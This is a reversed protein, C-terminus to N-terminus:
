VIEVSKELLRRYVIAGAIYLALSAIIGPLAVGLAEGIGYNYLVIRRVGELCWYLPLAKPIDQAWEPLIFAPIIIGGLFMLPFAISNVLMNVAEPSRALPAIVLGLGLSGLLGVAFLGSMALADRWEILSYDAGALRGVVVIATASILLAVMSTVTDAAFITYGRMPSSLLLKLTGDRKREVIIGAGTYLGSFLIQVGIMGIVYFTRVGGKTALIEPSVPVGEVSIPELLIEARADGAIRAAIGRSAEGIVSEIISAIYDGSQPNSYYLLLVRGQSGQTINESFGEGIFVAASLSGNAIAKRLEELGLDSLQLKLAGTSNLAQIIVSSFPGRDYDVVAVDIELVGPEGGFVAILVLLFIIPFGINWFAIERYRLMSKLFAYVEALVQSVPMPIM